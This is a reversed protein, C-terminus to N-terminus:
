EMEGHDTFGADVLTQDLPKGCKICQPQTDPPLYREWADHLDCRKYGKRVKEEETGDPNAAMARIDGPHIEYDRLFRSLRRPDLPKGKLDGWPAEDLGNLANLIAETHMGETDNWVLKIDSLLKIGLSESVAAKADAVLAVAAERAVKPWNGGAADAVALLAEWVDADRDAIGPPMLPWADGLDYEAGWAALEERLGHGEDKHVRRRYPRVEEGPSRRKMRVIVSRTFLTDPLNHLGALAVACYAPLEETEVVEGRTVCRGAVAGRRHGANLMGRIEENDKAKPGFLTDIEDYLITPLGKPDAVKRFLYAPTTNVAEVARPVLLETVELARTKGSGPEPSLFAIRPTSEWAGMAHTHAVWLTHAVQAHGSPYVVFQGLFKGVRSLLGGLDGHWPVTLAVPESDAVPQGASAASTASTASVYGAPPECALGLLDDVTHGAGLFDDLGVKAGDEGDPLIVHRVIAGRWTLWTTLRKLAGSVEPKVMVDSDFAVYVDRGRLLVHRWDPLAVGHSMWGDVGVLAICCLGASVAADAKRAGETLWLRTGDEALQGRVRPPVDLCIQARWPTEYKCEKGRSDLRPNDPRYQHLRLEGDSGHIPILLGPVQVKKAFRLKRITALTDVSVYGRERAVAPDIASRALMDQHHPFLHLGYGTV